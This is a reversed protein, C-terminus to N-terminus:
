LDLFPFEDHGNAAAQVVLPELGDLPLGLPRRPDSRLSAFDAIRPQDISTSVVSSPSGVSSLPAIATNQQSTDSDHFALYHSTCVGCIRITHVGSLGHLLRDQQLCEPNNMLEDIDPLPTCPPEVEPTDTLGLNERKQQDSKQKADSVRRQSRMVLSQEKSISCNKEYSPSVAMLYTDDVYAFVHVEVNPRYLKKIEETLMRM